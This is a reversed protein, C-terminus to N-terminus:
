IRDEPMFRALRAPLNHDQLVREVLERDFVTWICSDQPKRAELHRALYAAVCHAGSGTQRSITIALPHTEGRESSSPAPIHWAQSSVFHLCRELEPQTQM